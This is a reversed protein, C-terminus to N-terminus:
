IPSLPDQSGARFSYLDRIYNEYLHVDEQSLKPITESLVNGCRSCIAQKTGETSATPWVTIAWDGYLHSCTSHTYTTPAIDPPTQDSTLKPISASDVKGCTQCTRTKSGAAGTTAEKTITWSTWSHGQAKKVNEKIEYGCVTCTLLKYGDQTCTMVVTEEKYTHKHEELKPIAEIEKEGCLTCIREQSGETEVTAALVEEWEGYQHALPGTENDKYSDGCTCIHLTYGGEKCTAPFENEEYNHTHMTKPRQKALLLCIGGITIAVTAAVTAIIMRKKTRREM